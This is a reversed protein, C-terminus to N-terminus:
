LGVVVPRRTLPKGGTRLIHISPRREQRGDVVEDLAVLV